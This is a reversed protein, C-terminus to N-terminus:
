HSQAASRRSVILRLSLRGLVLVAFAVIVLLKGYAHDTIDNSAAEGSALTMSALVLVGLRLPTDRAPALLRALISRPGESVSWTAPVTMQEGFTM